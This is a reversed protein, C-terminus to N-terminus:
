DLHLRVEHPAVVEAEDELKEGVIEVIQQSVGVESSDRQIQRSLKALLHADRETLFFCQEM